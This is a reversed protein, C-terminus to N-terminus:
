NDGALSELYAQTIWGDGEEATLEALASVGRGIYRQSHTRLYEEVGTGNDHSMQQFIKEQIRNIGM